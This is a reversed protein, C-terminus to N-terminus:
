PEHGPDLARVDQFGLAPTGPVANGEVPEVVFGEHDGVDVRAVVDGAFWSHCRELIPAGGRGPHWSTDGLKDHEEGSTGGFLEALESADPPVVHVALSQARCAVRYTQNKKSLFVVFRLPDISCQTAFGVLCGATTGHAAATVIYMPHDTEEGVWRDIGASM